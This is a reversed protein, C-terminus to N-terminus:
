AVCWSERINSSSGLVRSFLKIFRSISLLTISVPIGAVYNHFVPLLFSILHESLFTHGMLESMTAVLHLAFHPVVETNEEKM